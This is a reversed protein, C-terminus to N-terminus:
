SVRLHPYASLQLTDSILPLGRSFTKLAILTQGKYSGRWSKSFDRMVLGRPLQLERREKQWMKWDLPRFWAGSEPQHSHCLQHQEPIWSPCDVARQGLSEKIKILTEMLLTIFHSMHMNFHKLQGRDWRGDDRRCCTGHRLDPSGTGSDVHDKKNTIHSADWYKSWWVELNLIESFKEQITWYININKLSSGRLLTVLSDSNALISQRVTIMQTETELHSVWLVFLM